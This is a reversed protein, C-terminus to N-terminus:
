QPEEFHPPEMAYTLLSNTMGELVKARDSGSIHCHNGVEDRVIKDDVTRLREAYWGITTSEANDPRPMHIRFDDASIEVRWGLTAVRQVADIFRDAENM